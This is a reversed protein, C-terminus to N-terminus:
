VTVTDLKDIFYIGTKEIYKMVVPDLVYSSLRNGNGMAMRADTAAIDIYVDDLLEVKIMPKCQEHLAQIRSPVAADIEYGPRNAIVFTCNEVLYPVDYWTDLTNYSDRGMILYVILEETSDVAKFFDIISAVTKSTYSIGSEIMRPVFRSDKRTALTIMAYRHHLPTLRKDQKHPPIDAPVFMIYNLGLKNAAAEAVALHGNHIPDFSGGFLAIRKM